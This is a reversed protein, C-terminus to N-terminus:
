LGLRHRGADDDVLWPAREPVYEVLEPEFVQEDAVNRAAVDSRLRSLEDIITPLSTRTIAMWELIDPPTDRTAPVNKAAVGGGVIGLVGGIVPLLADVLDQTAIGWTVLTLGAGSVIIYLTVRLRPDLHTM